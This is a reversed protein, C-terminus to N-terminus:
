STRNWFYVRPSSLNWGINKSSLTSGFSNTATLNVMWNGTPFDFVPRQTTSFTFETNNGLLNAATWTWSTPFNTSTDNLIINFSSVPASDGPSYDVFVYGGYITTAPNTTWTPQVGKIEFYDGAVVSINMNDNEFIREFSSARITKISHDTANNIRIDMSWSENTGATGSYCYIYVKNITGNKPIYVKNQGGSTAYPAKPMNGFFVTQADTPSSTLAHVYLPYGAPETSTTTNVFAIGSTVVVPNTVWTPNYRKFEFFDKVKVPVDLAANDFIQEPSSNIALTKIPTDNGSFDQILYTWSEATGVTSAYDYIYVKTINGGQPILFKNTSQTTSGAVPRWGLYNTVADAPTASIAEMPIVYGPESSNILVYGGVINTAPNTAWNVPHVRKIEFYDGTNISVRITSNSFVREMTAVSLTDILYDTANNITIYYSYAENTGATGSYDYLEVREIIGSTPLYVKSQGSSTTIPAKPLNGFYNIVNDGPSNTLTQVPITYYWSDASVISILFIITLISVIFFTPAKM